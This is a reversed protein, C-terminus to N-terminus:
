ASLWCNKERGFALLGPFSNGPEVILLQKLLSRAFVKVTIVKPKKQLLFLV